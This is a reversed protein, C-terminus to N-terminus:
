VEEESELSEYGSGEAMCVDKKSPYIEELTKQAAARIRAFDAHRKQQVKRIFALQEKTM